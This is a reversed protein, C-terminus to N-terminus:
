PEIGGEGALRDRDDRYVGRRDADDLLELAEGLLARLKDREAEAREAREFALQTGRERSRLLESHLATLRTNEDLLALVAERAVGFLRADEVRDFMALEPKNIMSFVGPEIEDNQQHVGFWNAHANYGGRGDEDFDLPGPTAAKALARLKATDIADSM